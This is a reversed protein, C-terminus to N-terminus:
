NMKILRHTQLNISTPFKGNKIFFCIQHQQMQLSFLNPSCRAPPAEDKNSQNVYKNILFVSVFCLKFNRQM